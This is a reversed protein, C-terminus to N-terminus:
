FLLPLALFVLATLAGNLGMAIGAFTGAEESVQFARATGIGHSAIGAAFGRAAFDRIGMANMLPTVIMAGLIGTLVVLVAALAPIGGITETLAMAIPATVSKAALSALVERPAGFAWAIVVASAIATLSGAVLAACMPLLNRRVAVRNRWLPVALAVTAPGLLFHVFQAGDFYAQYSTGTATLLVILLGAAIMVPNALPHRGLRASVADGAVFAVLTATLWLLPTESLYVWIRVLDGGGSV